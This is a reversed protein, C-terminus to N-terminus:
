AILYEITEGSTSNFWEAMSDSLAVRRVGQGKALASLSNDSCEGQLLDSTERM